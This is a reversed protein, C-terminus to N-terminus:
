FRGNNFCAWTTKPHKQNDIFNRYAGAMQDAVMDPPMAGCCGCFGPIALTKHFGSRRAAILLGLMAYYANETNSVIMPVRMTPTHFLLRKGKGVLFFSTGIPQEGCYDQRIREQVEREIERGFFMKVAYDIGGDMIGYSNGACSIADWELLEFSGNHIKVDTGAFARQWERCVDPNLDVLIINM